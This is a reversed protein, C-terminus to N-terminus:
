AHKLLHHMIGIAIGFFANMDHASKKKEAHICAATSNVHVHLYGGDNVCACFGIVSGLNGLPFASIGFTAHLGIQPWKGWSSCSISLFIPCLPFPTRGLGGGPDALLFM